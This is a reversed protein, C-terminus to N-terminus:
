REVGKFKYVLILIVVLILLIIGFISAYVWGATVCVPKDSAGFKLLGLVNYKYTTTVGKTQYWADCVLGGGGGGSSACQYDKLTDNFIISTDCCKIEKKAGNVCKIICKDTNYNDGEVCTQPKLIQCTTTAEAYNSALNYDQIRIKCNDLTQGAYMGATLPIDIVQQSNKSITFKNSIDRQKGTNCTVSYTYTGDVSNANSVTIHAYGVDGSYYEDCSAKIITPKATPIVVGLWNAKVKFLVESDGIQNDLDVIIKGNQQNDRNGWVSNQTLSMDDRKINGVAINGDAVIKFLKTYYSNGTDSVIKNSNVTAEAKLLSDTSIFSKIYDNYHTKSTLKWLNSDLDYYGLYSSASPPSNGLWAINLFQATARLTSGDYFEINQNQYNSLSKKILNENANLTIDMSHLLTQPSIDAFVGSSKKTACVRWCVYKSSCGIGSCTQSFPISYTTGLPCEPADSPRQGLLDYNFKKCNYLSDAGNSSKTTTIDFYNLEDGNADISYQQQEKINDISIKLPFNTTYGSFSKVDSPNITGVISQGGGTQVDVLFFASNLQDANSIVQTSSIDKVLFGSPVIVNSTLGLFHISMIVLGIITAIIFVLLKKKGEINALLGGIAGAVIIFGGIFLFIRSIFFSILLGGTVIGIILLIGLIVLTIVPASLLLTLFQAKKNKILSKM